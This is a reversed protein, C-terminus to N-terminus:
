KSIEGLCELVNNQFDTNSYDKLSGSWRRELTKASENLLWIMDELLYICLSQGKDQANGYFESSLGQWRKDDIFEKIRGIYDRRYRFKYYYTILDYGLSRKSFTEWDLVYLCNDTTYFINGDQFDGHSAAIITMGDEIKEAIKKAFEILSERCDGLDSFLSLLEIIEKILQEAYECRAVAERTTRQITMLTEKVKPEIALRSNPNMRDVTVGDLMAERYRNEAVNELPLVFDWLPKERVSREVNLSTISFGEKILNDVTKNKYDFVKTKMNGPMILLWQANDPLDSLYIYKRHFISIFGLKSFALRIYLDMALHLLKSRYVAHGARVSSKVEKAADPRIAANLRPCLVFSSEKYADLVQVKTYFYKSLTAEILSDIDERERIDAYGM